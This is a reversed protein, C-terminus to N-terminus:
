GRKEISMPASAAGSVIGQWPQTPYWVQCAPDSRSFVRRMAVTFRMARIGFRAADWVFRLSSIFIQTVTSLDGHRLYDRRFPGNADPRSNVHESCSMSAPRLSTTRSRAPNSVLFAAPDVFVIPRMEDASIWKLSYDGDRVLPAAFERSVM